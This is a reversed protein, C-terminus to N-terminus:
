RAISAAQDALTVFTEPLVGLVVVAAVAAAIAVSLGTTLVPMAAGNGHELDPEELYMAGMLRLYFFAAIVSSIVGVVVLWTLGADVGATFVAFKGTFGATAPIGALSLLSLGFVGALVPARRGMGKLDVLAVEGRRRREIAIVCGFAALASVAYTLLYYLTSSIGDVSASSVGVLAYGVHAISSYALVRKVDRQLVAAIAGVLMTVAAVAALVPVWSVDLRGFAMLYVRLLVAFAATKTGAAMFATVNTPSGQYVDPTWLHFPVVAAKFGLGVTILALGLYVVPMPTTVVAIADGIGALDVTGTGVYTLAIGYVLIASAVAGLLFYKLSAEQARRDRRAIGAMVYLPFSLLEIALFVVLLDGAAGLVTMGAASLLLLPEFELRHIGREQMYGYGLPLVLLAVVLVVVRTFVAVGDFAIAGGLVVSTGGTLYADVWQWGTLALAGLLGFGALWTQILAPRDDFAVPVAITAAAFAVIAAGPLTLGELILWLGLAATAIGVPLAFLLRAAGGVALVLLLLATGVVLLEPAIASWAIEPMQLTTVQALVTM